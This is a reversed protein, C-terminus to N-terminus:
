REGIFIQQSGQNSENENLDIFSKAYLISMCEPECSIALESLWQNYFGVSEKKKKDDSIM